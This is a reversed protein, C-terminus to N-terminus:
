IAKPIEFLENDYINDTIINHIGSLLIKDTGNKSGSDIDITNHIKNNTTSLIKIPMKAANAILDNILDSRVLKRDESPLATSVLNDGNVNNTDFTLNVPFNCKDLWAHHDIEAFLAPLNSLSGDCVINIYDNITLNRVLLATPSATELDYTLCKRGSRRREGHKYDGFFAELANNTRSVLGHKSDNLQIIHGWLYDSYKDMYTVITRMAALEATTGKKTACSQRIEACYLKVLKEIARIAIVSPADDAGDLQLVGHQVCSDLRLMHRLRNFVGEKERLSKATKCLAKDSIVSSIVNQVQEFSRSVNYDFVAARRLNIIANAAQECRQYLCLQPLVFPFRAKECDATYDLVWQCVMRVIGLGLLGEPLPPVDSTKAWEAVEIRINDVGGGLKHGIKKAIGGLKKKVELGRLAKTMKDHDKEYISKGVAKLFHTQCIFVAPPEDHSAAAAATAQMMGKGLDSIYSIPIGFMEETEKIHPSIADERESPIKWAGLAWGRWGAYFTLTTGRGNECTADIHLPYGGDKRMADKLDESRKKHLEEFHGLFRAELASIEGESIDVNASLKIQEKIELRQCHHIFRQLGVFVEIDYGYNAGSAVLAALESSHERYLTGLPTRCRGPCVEIYEMVDVKGLAMTSIHRPATKEVIMTRGCFACSSISRQTHFKASLISVEIAQKHVESFKHM